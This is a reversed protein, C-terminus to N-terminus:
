QVELDHPARATTVSMALPKARYPLQDSRRPGGETLTATM